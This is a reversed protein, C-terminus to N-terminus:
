EPPQILERILKSVTTGKAKARKKLSKLDAATLRLSYRLLPNTARPRGRTEKAMNHRRIKGSEM